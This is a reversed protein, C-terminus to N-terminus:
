LRVVLVISSACTLPDREGADDWRCTTGRRIYDGLRSEGTDEDSNQGVRCPVSGDQARKTPVLGFFQM